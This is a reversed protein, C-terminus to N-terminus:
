RPPTATSSAPETEGDRDREREREQERWVRARLLDFVAHRIGVCPQWRDVVFISHLRRRGDARAPLVAHERPILHGLKILFHARGFELQAVVGLDVAVVRVRHVRPTVVFALREEEHAAWIVPPHEAAPHTLVQVLVGAPDVSVRARVWPEPEEVRAALFHRENRVSGAPAVHVVHVGTVGHGPTSPVVQVAVAREGAAM